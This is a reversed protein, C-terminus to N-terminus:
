ANRPLIVTQLQVEQDTKDLTIDITIANDGYFDLGTIYEGIIKEELVLQHPSGFADTDNYAVYTTPASDFYYVIIQRRLEVGNVYYRIYQIQSRTHGDQFQLEHAVSAPDSNDAPLTTVLADAQRIERTMLDTIIRGNQLLEATHANARYVRQNFVFATGVIVIILLGVVISVVTELLSFGPKRHLTHPMPKIVLM